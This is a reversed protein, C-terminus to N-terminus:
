KETFEQYFHTETIHDFGKQKFKVIKSKNKVVSNKM